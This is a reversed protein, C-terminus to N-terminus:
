THQPLKINLISNKNVEYEIDSRSSNYAEWIIRQQETSKGNELITANEAAIKLVQKSYVEAYEKMCEFIKYPDATGQYEYELKAALGDELDYIDDIAGGFKNCLIQELQTM